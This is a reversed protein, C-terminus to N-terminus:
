NGDSLGANTLVNGFQGSNKFVGTAGPDEWTTIEMSFTTVVPSEFSSNPVALSVTEAFASVCMVSLLSVVMFSTIKIKLGGLLLKNQLPGVTAVEFHKENCGGAKRMSM